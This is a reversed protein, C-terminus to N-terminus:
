SRPGSMEKSQAATQSQPETPGCGAKALRDILKSCAARDQRVSEQWEAIRDQEVAAYFKDLQRQGQEDVQMEANVLQGCTECGWLLTGHPSIFWSKWAYQEDRAAIEGHPCRLKLMSRLRRCRREHREHPPSILRYVLASLVAGLSVGISGVVAVAFATM